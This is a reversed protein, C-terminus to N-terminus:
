NEKLLYQILNESSKLDPNTESTPEEKNKDSTPDSVSETNKDLSKCKKKHLWIGNHSYYQKSCKECKYKLLNSSKADGLSDGQDGFVLKKHKATLLHKEFNYQKSTNYDCKECHFITAVKAVNENVSM